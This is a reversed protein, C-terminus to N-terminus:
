GKKAKIDKVFAKPTYGASNLQKVGAMECQREFINLDSLKKSKFDKVNWEPYCFSLQLYVYDIALKEQLIKKRTDEDASLGLANSLLNKWKIINNYNFLTFRYKAASDYTYMKDTGHLAQKNIDLYYDYMVGGARKFYKSCFVRILSDDDLDPNFMLRATLYSKIASGQTAYLSGVQQFFLQKIGMKRLYQLNPKLTFLVPWPIFPDSFNATYEWFVLNPTTAVWEPILRRMDIHQQVDYGDQEIPKSKDIDANTLLITVNPRPKITKPLAKTQMYALTSIHYNPFSDAIKNVFNLLVGMYAGGEKQLLKQIEASEDVFPNDNLSVSFTNYRGPPYKFIKRRINKTVIGLLSYNALNPQVATRQGNRIAFYEPHSSFFSDKPLIDTEFTHALDYYRYFPIQLRNAATYRHDYGEWSYISRMTFPSKFTNSEFNALPLRITSSTYLTTRDLVSLDVMRELLDFAGYIIGSDPGAKVGISSGSALLQYSQSSLSGDTTLSLSYSPQPETSSCDQATATGSKILYYKIFDQAQLNAGFAPSVPLFCVGSVKKNIVPKPQSFALTTTFFGMVISLLKM